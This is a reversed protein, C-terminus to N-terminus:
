FFKLTSIIREAEKEIDPNYNKYSIEILLEINYQMDNIYYSYVSGMLTGKKYVMKGWEYEGLQMNSSSVVEGVGHGGAQFNMTFGQHVCEIIQSGYREDINCDNPYSINFKGRPINNTAFYLIQGQLTKWNATEDSPTTSTSPSPCQTFECNPGERGVYTGDPCQKAEETCAKTGPNQITQSNLSQKGLYFSGIGVVLLVLICVIILMSAFGSQLRKLKKPMFKIM